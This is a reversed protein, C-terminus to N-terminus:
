PKPNIIIQSEPLFLSKPNLTEFRRSVNLHSMWGEIDEVSLFGDGDIDIEAFAAPLSAGSAQFLIQPQSKPDVRRCGLRWYTELGPNIPNLSLTFTFVQM